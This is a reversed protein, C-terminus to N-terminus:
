QRSLQEIFTLDDSLDKAATNPGPLMESTKYGVANLGSLLGKPISSLVSFNVDRSVVVFVELIVRMTALIGYKIGSRLASNNYADRLGYAVGFFADALACADSGYATFSLGKDPNSITTKTIEFLGFFTPIKEITLKNFESDAGSSLDDWLGGIPDGSPDKWAGYSDSEKNIGDWDDQYTRGSPDVYGIPNNLCYAYRNLSQPNYPDPVITDAMVFQGLNPDYLRADYNYLGTGADQEQDTYKYASHNLLANAYRDRGYPLYEATDILTGSETTMANTSGQHDKHYYETGAGTMKAIRLNGAFAYLTPINNIVELDEGFYLTSVSRM